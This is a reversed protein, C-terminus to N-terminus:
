KEKISVFSISKYLLSRLVDVNTKIVIHVTNYTSHEEIKQYHNM